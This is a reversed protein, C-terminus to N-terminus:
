KCNARLPFKVKKEKHTVELKGTVAKGDVEVYPAYLFNLPAGDHKSDLVIDRGTTFLVRNETLTGFFYDRKSPDKDVVKDAESIDM